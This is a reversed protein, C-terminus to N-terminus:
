LSSIEMLEGVWLHRLKSLNGIRYQLESFLGTLFHNCIRGQAALDKLVRSILDPLPCHNSHEGFHLM